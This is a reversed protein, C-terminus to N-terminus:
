DRHYELADLIHCLLCSDTTRSKNVGLQLDRLDNIAGQVLGYWGFYEHFQFKDFNPLYKLIPNQPQYGTVWQKPKLNFGVSNGNELLHDFFESAEEEFKKTDVILWQEVYDETKSKFISYFEDDQSVSFVLNLEVFEIGHNTPKTSVRYKLHDIKIPM